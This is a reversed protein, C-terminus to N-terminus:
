FEEYYELGWPQYRKTWGAKPSNHVEIRKHVDKTSGIYYVDAVKSKLIYVSFSM